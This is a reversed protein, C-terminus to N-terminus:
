IHILSLKRAPAVETAATTAADSSAAKAPAEAATAAQDNQTESFNEM